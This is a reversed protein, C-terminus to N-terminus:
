PVPIRFHPADTSVTEVVLLPLQAFNCAAVCVCVTSTCQQRTAAAWSGPRAQRAQMIERAQQKEDEARTKVRAWV